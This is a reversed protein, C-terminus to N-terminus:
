VAHMSFFPRRSQNVPGGIEAAAQDVTATLNIFRPLCASLKSVGLRGDPLAKDHFKKSNNRIYRGWTHRRWEYGHPCLM